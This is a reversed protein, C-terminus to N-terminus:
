GNETSIQSDGNTEMEKKKYRSQQGVQIAFRMERKVQKMGEDVSFHVPLPLFSHIKQAEILTGRGEGGEMFFLLYFAGPGHELALPLVDLERQGFGADVRLRIKQRREIMLLLDGMLKMLALGHDPSAYRLIDERLLGQLIKRENERTLSIVADALGAVEDDRLANDQLLVKLLLYGEVLSLERVSTHHSMYYADRVKDYLIEERLYHDSLGNRLTQIDRDFTRPTVEEELVYSSKRIAEGDRLRLYLSLIRDGRHQQSM